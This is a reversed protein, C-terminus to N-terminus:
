YSFSSFRVADFNVVYKGGGMCVKPNIAFYSEGRICLEDSLAWSIGLRAPRPYHAPPKFAAHYGGVSFVFDGAYGSPPFWYCLAFGGTLRCGPNVIFSNPSLEAEVRLSGAGFDVLALLGLEVYLFCSERPAPAPPMQAVAKGFIGLSVYPNFELIVVASVDLVQLAKAELGAALWYSAEKPAVVGVTPDLSSLKEMVALPDNGPLSSNAIFPFSPVEHVAPYRISSNYGFGLCIGGVTVAALEILPGNLKAFFFVTKFTEGSASGSKKVEGYAGVAMFSYPALTLAIGGVYMKVNATTREVFLGTVGVPPQSFEVGMGALHFRPAATTLDKLNVAALDMGFGFGLLALKIPGLNAHIDLFITLEDDEYRLGVNSVSFPGVKKELTAHSTGTPTSDSEPAPLPTNSGRSVLSALGSSAPQKPKNFLYDLVARPSGQGGSDLILFHMGAPLVIAAAATAAATPDNTDTAPKTEKFLVPSLENLREVEQRTLGPQLKVDKWTPDQVWYFGLSDFAPKINDVVPVKPIKDWPLGGLTVKVMRKTAAQINKPATTPTPKTTTQLFALELKTDAPGPISLSLCMTFSGPTTKKDQDTATESDEDDKPKVSRLSLEILAKALDISKVFEPIDSIAAGGGRGLLSKVVDEVTLKTQASKLVADFSWGATDRKFDLDLEVADALRLKGDISFSSASAGTTKAAGSPTKSGKQDGGKSSSSEYNYELTLEPIEIHGLLDKVIDADGAPFFQVLQALNLNAISGELKFMSTKNGGDVQTVLNIDCQISTDDSQEGTTPDVPTDTPLSIATQLNIEYSNRDTQTKDASKPDWKFSATLDVEDLSIGLNATNVNPDKGLKGTFTVTTDQFDLSLEEIVLSLEAPLRKRV